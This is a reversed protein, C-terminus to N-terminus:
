RIMVKYILDGELSSIQIIYLGPGFKRLDLPKIGPSQLVAFEKLIVKGETTIVSFLVHSYEKQFQINVLGDGPNPYICIGKEDETVDILTAAPQWDVIINSYNTTGSPNTHQALPGKTFPFSTVAHQSMKNSGWGMEIFITYDGDLVVNRSVDTGNWTISMTGYSTLTAGTVADIQNGGSIASWSTLHDDESGYKADTKVFVSPNANNQIWVALVHKDGWTGSPASTTCSFSLTGFTQGTVSVFFGCALVCTLFKINTVM